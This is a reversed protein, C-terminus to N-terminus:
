AGAAALPIISENRYSQAASRTPTTRTEAASKDSEACDGTLQPKAVSLGTRSEGAIPAPHPRSPGTFKPNSGRSSATTSSNKLADIDILGSLHPGADDRGDHLLEYEYSQGRRGRHTLVYEMATLREIHITAQTDSLGTAQRLQARTFRVDRQAVGQEQVVADVMTHLASLVRRTQPPLEDASTGLVEHALQNAVAIDDLTAEIYEIAQGQYSATKIPRQHQHMLAIVDILTLYKEHDRRTRTRDDTFTLQDAYPNVVAYPKLLRQANNHLALLRTKNEKRILGQLTRKERQLRHIARTQESDEDVTLV